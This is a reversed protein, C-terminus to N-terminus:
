SFNGFKPSIPEPVFFNFAFFLNPTSFVGEGLILLITKSESSFKESISQWSELLGIDTKYRDM